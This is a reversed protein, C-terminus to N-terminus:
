GRGFGKRKQAMGWGSTPTGTNTATPTAGGGPLPLPDFQYSSGATTSPTSLKMNALGAEGDALTRNSGLTLGLEAGRVQTGALQSVLNHEIDGLQGSAALEIGSRRRAQSSEQDATRRLTEGSRFVGRGEQSTAVARREQEGTANLDDTQLGLATNVAERRRAADSTAISDTLGSARLLALYAPDQALSYAPSTM